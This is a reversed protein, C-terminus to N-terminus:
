FKLRSFFDFWVMKNDQSSTSRSSSSPQRHRPGCITPHSIEDYWDFYELTVREGTSHVDLETVPVLHKLKWHYKVENDRFTLEYSRATCDRVVILPPIPPLDPVSQVYGLQRLTRHADYPEIISGFQILGCFATRPIIGEVGRGFPLWSVQM